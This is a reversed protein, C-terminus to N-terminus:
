SEDRWNIQGDTARELVYTENASEAAPLDPFQKVYGDLLDAPDPSGIACEHLYSVKGQYQGQDGFFAFVPGWTEPLSIPLVIEVYLLGDVYILIDNGSGVLRIKNRHDTEPIM